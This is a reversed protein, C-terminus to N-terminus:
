YVRFSVGFVYEKNVNSGCDTHMEGFFTSTKLLAEASSVLICLIM